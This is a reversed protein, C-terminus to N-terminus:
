DKGRGRGEEGREESTVYYLEMATMASIQVSSQGKKAEDLLEEVVDAGEENDTLTFIAPTDLLYGKSM